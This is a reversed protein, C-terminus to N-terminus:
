EIANNSEKNIETSQLDFHGTSVFFTENWFSGKNLPDFFQAGDSKLVVPNLPIQTGFITRFSQAFPLLIFVM